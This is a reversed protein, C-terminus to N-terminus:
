IKRSKRRPFPIFYKKIKEIMLRSKKRELEDVFPFSKDIVYEFESGKFSSHINCEETPCNDESFYGYRLNEGDSSEDCAETYMKGSASCYPLRCIEDTKFRLFDDEESESLIADHIEAAIKDWIELNGVTQINLNEENKDYGCWIGFTVYPTYGIFLRDRSGSSTGTKGATDVTDKLRLAKATGESVVGSLMQNMIKATSEKFVRNSEPDNKLIENGDGDKVLVYSREKQLVGNAPFVTYANVIRRLSVGVSLQGLALPSPALDKIRDVTDFHFDNILSDRINEAGLMEYLRVAVTNKSLKLADYVSIPGAYKDPSNKPYAVLEGDKEKYSVPSDDFVTAWNIMGKDILPAYLALPKLTSAPPHPLNAHNLVREGTKKGANGIVGLLNGNKSDM